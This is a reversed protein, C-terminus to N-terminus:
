VKSLFNLNLKMKLKKIEKKIDNPLAKSDDDFTLRNQIKSTLLISSSILKNYKDLETKKRRITLSNNVKIKNYNINDNSYKILNPSKNIYINNLIKNLNKDSNM